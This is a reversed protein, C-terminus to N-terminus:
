VPPSDEEAGLDNTNVSPAEGQWFERLRLGSANKEQRDKEQCFRSVAEIAAVTAGYSGWSPYSENSAVYLRQLGSFFGLGEGEIARLNDPIHHPQTFNYIESLEEQRPAVENRFDPYVRIVHYELFPFLDMMQRFMRAAILRQYSASLSEQSFPMWTRVFLLRTASKGLYYDDPDAVEVELAPAGREKWVLRHGIGQQIAEEHVTMGLTFKWGHPRPAVKLRKAGRRSGSHYLYKEAHDLSCGLIAANMSIMKGRRSVQVGVVEGSEVFIRRCELNRPVTAGARRALGLLFRRYAQMGGVFSAGTRALSISQLLDVLGPDPSDIGTVGYWLGSCYDALDLSRTESELRSVRATPQLWYGHRGRIHSSQLALYSRAQDMTRSPGRVLRLRGHQTVREPFTQWFRLSMADSHQVAQLIGSQGILDDGFERELEKKFRTLDQRFCLRAQPTMVQPQFDDGAKLSRYSPVSVGLQKLSSGLLGLTHSDRALGLLYNSEPDICQGSDSMRTTCGPYLPLVLVRYNMRAMLAASLLAGPHDGLVVWDYHDQLEIESM